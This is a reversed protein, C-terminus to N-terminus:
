EKDEWCDDPKVHFQVTIRREDNERSLHGKMSILKDRLASLRVVDDLHEIKM